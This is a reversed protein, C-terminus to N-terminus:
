GGWNVVRPEQRKSIQHAEEVTDNDIRFDAMSLGHHPAKTIGDLGQQLIKCCPIGDIIDQFFKGIKLSLIKKSTQLKGGSRELTTSNM